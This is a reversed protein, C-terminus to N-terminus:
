ISMVTRSRMREYEAASIVGDDRLRALKMLEEAASYGSPEHQGNYGGAPRAAPQALAPHAVVYILLGIFPLVVVLVIWGAKGWGSLDDRRFLDAIVAIFIWILMFWFFFALMAWLVDGLDM